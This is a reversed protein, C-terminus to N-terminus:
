VLLDVAQVSARLVEACLAAFEAVPLDLHWADVVTHAGAVPYREDVLVVLGALLADLVATAALHEVDGGAAADKDLEIHGRALACEGPVVEGAQPQSVGLVDVACLARGDGACQNHGASPLRALLGGVDLRGAGALAGVPEDGPLVEADFSLVGVADVREGFPHTAAM